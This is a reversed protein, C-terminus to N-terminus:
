HFYLHFSFEDNKSQKGDMMTKVRPESRAQLRMKEGLYGGVGSGGDRWRPWM